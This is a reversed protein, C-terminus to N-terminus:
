EYVLIAKGAIVGPYKFYLRYVERNLCGDAYIM